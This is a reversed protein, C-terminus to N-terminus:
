PFAPEGLPGADAAELRLQTLVAARDLDEALREGQEGRRGNAFALIGEAIVQAQRGDHFFRVAFPAVNRESLWGQGESSSMRRQDSLPTLM